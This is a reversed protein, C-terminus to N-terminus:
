CCCWWTQLHHQQLPGWTQTLGYVPVHHLLEWCPACFVVHDQVCGLGLIQNYVKPSLVTLGNMSLSQTSLTETKWNRSKWMFSSRFWLMLSVTFMLSTCCVSQKYGKITGYFANKCVVDTHNELQMVTSLFISRVTTVVAWFIILQGSGERSSRYLEWQKLFAPFIRLFGGWGSCESKSSNGKLCFSWSVSLM